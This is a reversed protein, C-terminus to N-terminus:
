HDAVACKGSAAAAASPSARRPLAAGSSAAPSCVAGNCNWTSSRRALMLRKNANKIHPCPLEPKLADIKTNLFCNTNMMSSNHQHVGLSLIIEFRKCCGSVIPTM